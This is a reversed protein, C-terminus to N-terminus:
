SQLYKILICFVNKLVAPLNIAATSMSTGPFSGCGEKQSSSSRWADFLKMSHCTEWCCSLSSVYTSHVTFVLAIDLPILQNFLNPSYNKRSRIETEDVHVSIYRVSYQPRWTFIYNGVQNICFNIIILIFKLPLWLPLIHGRPYVGQQCTYVILVRTIGNIGVLDAAHMDV